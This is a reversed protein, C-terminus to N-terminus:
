PVTEIIFNFANTTSDTVVLMQILSNAPVPIATRLVHDKTPAGAALNRFKGMKVGGVLLEACCDFAATSGCLGVGTIVRPFNKTKFENEDEFLDHNVGGGTAHVIPWLM